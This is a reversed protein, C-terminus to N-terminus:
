IDNAANGSFQGTEDLVVPANPVQRTVRLCVWIVSASLQKRFDCAIGFSQRTPGQIADENPRKVIAKQPVLGQINARRAAGNQDSQSIQRFEPNLSRIQDRDLVGFTEPM